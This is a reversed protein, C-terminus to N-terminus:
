TEDAPAPLATPSPRTRAARSRDRLDHRMQRRALVRVRRLVARFSKEIGEVVRDFLRGEDTSYIMAFSNILRGNCSFIVKEYFTKGNGEGSLV